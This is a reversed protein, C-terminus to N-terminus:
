HRADQQPSNTLRQAGKHLLVQNRVSEKEKSSASRKPERGMHVNTKRRHVDVGVALLGRAEKGQVFHERTTLEQFDELNRGTQRRSVNAPIRM